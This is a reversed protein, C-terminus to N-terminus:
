GPTSSVSRRSACGRPVRRRSCASRSRGLGARGPDSGGAAPCGDVRGAGCRAPGTHAMRRRTAQLEPWLRPSGPRPPATAPRELRRLGEELPLELHPQRARLGRGARTRVRGLGDDRWPRGGGAPPPPVARLAVSTREDALPPSRHNREDDGDVVLIGRQLLQEAAHHGHVHRLLQHDDVVAGRVAAPLDEGCSASRPGPPRGPAWGAFSFPSSTRKWSRFWPLPAASRRPKASAVPSM